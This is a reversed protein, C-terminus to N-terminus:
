KPPAPTLAHKVGDGTKWAHEELPQKEYIERDEAGDVYSQAVSNSAFMIAQKYDPDGPQILGETLRTVLYDQYNHANEHVITDITDYFDDFTASPHVNIRIVNTGPNFSGLDGPMPEEFTQVTPVPMGYIECEKVLTKQLLAIRKSIDTSAWDDKADMLEKDAKIAETLEARRQDDIAVFEPDMDMAAYIKRQLERQKDTLKEKQGRLAKLMAVKEAGSKTNKLDDPSLADVEAEVAAAAKDVDATIKDYSDVESESGDDATVTVKATAAAIVARSAVGIAPCRAAAAVYDFGFYADRFASLADERVELLAALEDSIPKFNGAAANDSSILNWAADAAEYDAKVADYQSKMQALAKAAALRSPYMARAQTYEHGKKLAFYESTLKNYTDVKPKLERTAAPVAGAATLETKDTQYEDNLWKLDAMKQQILARQALLGNLVPMLRDIEAMGEHWLKKTEFDKVKADHAFVADLRTKLDPLMIDSFALVIAINAKVQDTWRAEFQPKLLGTANEANAKAALMRDVVVRAKGLAESAEFYGKAKSKANYVKISAGLETEDADLTPRNAKALATAKNYDPLLAALADEMAKKAAGRQTLETLELNRLVEAAAIATTM